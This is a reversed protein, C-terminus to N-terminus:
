SGPGHGRCGQLNKNPKYYERINENVNYLGAMFVADNQQDLTLYVIDLNKGKKVYKYIRSHIESETLNKNLIKIKKYFKEKKQEETLMKTKLKFIAM